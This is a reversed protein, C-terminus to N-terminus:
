GSCDARLGLARAIDAWSLAGIGADVHSGLFVGAPFPGFARQSLAVGDTRRTTRGSFAGLHEFTSRDFVHYTNV